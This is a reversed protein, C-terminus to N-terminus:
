PTLCKEGRMWKQVMHLADEPVEHAGKFTYITNPYGYDGFMKSANYTNEINVIADDNGHALFVMLHKAAEVDKSNKKFWEEDFPAGFAIIGKILKHNKIGTKYAANGGQSFGLLYVDGIKYKSKMTGIVKAVYDSLMSKAEDSKMEDDLKLGWGYGVEGKDSLLPYPAQPVAFIFDPNEFKKYIGTFDEPNSGFGHLGVILTYSKNADFEEPLKEYCQLFSQAKIFDLKGFIAKKANMDEELKAVTTKFVESERVKEFDPDEKIWAVDAFGSKYAREIYKAALEPKGLLGYCCALNYINRDDTVNYHLYALYYKAAKEFDKAQYAEWATKELAKVDKDLFSGINPCFPKINDPDDWKACKPCPKGDATKHTCKHGEASEGEAPTIAEGTKPCIKKEEKACTKREEKTCAKKEDRSCTKKEDKPCKLETQTKSDTELSCSKDKKCKGFIGCSVLLTLACLIAMFSYLKKM